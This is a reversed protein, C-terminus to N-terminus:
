LFGMMWEAGHLVGLGWLAQEEPAGWGGLVPGCDLSEDMVVFPSVLHCKHTFVTKSLLNNESNELCCQM